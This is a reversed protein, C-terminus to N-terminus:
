QPHTVTRWLARTTEHRNVFRRVDHAIERARM